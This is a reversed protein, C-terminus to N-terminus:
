EMLFGYEYVKPKIKDALESLTLRLDKILANYNDDGSKNNMKGSDDRGQFFERIDYFSANVKASPQLHYYKWLKKGAKFVAKAEISFKLAKMKKPKKKEDFLGNSSDDSIKGNIFDHMFHSEFSNRSNVDAESFPIWNNVGYKSQINNCDHFLAYTVCNSVFENDKLCKEDPFLFQDRDNTWDAKICKRVSIYICAPIVNDKYIHYYGALDPVPYKYNVLFVLNQNQFDTRGGNLLGIKNKNEQLSLKEYKKIWKTIPLSNDTNFIYKEGLYNSDNDIIDVKIDNYDGEQDTSWIQFAIPFNGKVNDFTNAPVIFGKIFKAKFSSRFQDFNNAQLHKLKSFMGIKCDTFERYIRIIFQAYLERSSSGFSSEYATLVANGMSVGAKHKKLITSGHEAYPPNIYIILKKRKKDNKIIDYLGKPLKKIDDNLFDFQFVHNDWLNAGNKIRDKMVDVDATDLTSAWVNNKNTLGALLNGTGAACDWVYYEDQWDDGLVDAIYKQSLEVWQQPTFFSGKRERIDQPVLLDRRNIIYDWYEELPPREYKDWFEKHAKRNDNFGVEKYLSFGADDFKKDFKYQNNMLVVFLKDKLTYNDKSLLDALFFDGDIIGSKKVLLWDIAISKKVKELWKSYIIVFNNKNVPFKATINGAVLNNNIFSIIEQKDNDFNFITINKKTLKEVKKKTKLFDNTTHNSPTINWNVDNDRFIPLIDHFPVFAIKATDFCSIFLPPLYEGKEYTKKITLILQTLMDHIDAIGKKSEAWLYHRKWINGKLTKAETVIFDINGINPEYAYKSANFFDRFVAAKFTEEKQVGSYNSM